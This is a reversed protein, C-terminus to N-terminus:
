LSNSSITSEVPFSSARSVSSANTRSDFRCVTKKWEVEMLYKVTSVHHLDFGDNFNQYLVTSLFNKSVTWRARAKEESM